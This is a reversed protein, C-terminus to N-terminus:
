LHRPGRKGHAPQHLFAHSEGSHLGQQETVMGMEANRNAGDGHPQLIRLTDPNGARPDFEDPDDYLTMPAADEGTMILPASKAAQRGAQEHSALLASVAGIQSDDTDVTLVCMGERNDVGSEYLESRGFMEHFFLSFGEAFHLRKRTAPRTPVAMADDVAATEASSSGCHIHVGEATYGSALLADRALQATALENFVAGIIQRM